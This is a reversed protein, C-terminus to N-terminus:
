VNVVRIGRVLTMAISEFSRGVLLCVGVHVGCVNAVILLQFFSNRM